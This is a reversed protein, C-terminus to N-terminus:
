GEDALGAARRYESRIRRVDAAAIHAEVSNPAADALRREAERWEAIIASIERPKEIEDIPAVVGDGNSAVGASRHALDEQHQTLGLLAHAGERVLRALEVFRDSGPPLSRKERELEKLRDISQLSEDSRDRLDRELGADNM